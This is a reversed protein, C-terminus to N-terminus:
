GCGQRESNVRLRPRASAKERARACFHMCIESRRATDAGITARVRTWDNRANSRPVRWVREEDESSRPSRSDRARCEASARGNTRAGCSRRSRTTM